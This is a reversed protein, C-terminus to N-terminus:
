WDLSMGVRAVRPPVISVPRLFSAGSSWVVNREANTNFLNFVDIFAGLRRDGRLRLRKDVRLDLLTINDMRRSGVPEALVTVTAYQITQRDTTFTRGFPQGSQHRLVPTVSFSRPLEYTGHAKATWTTFEYRGDPGANILDNPTLAYVNNRLGQGSYGAAHERNWTHTFGAGLSWRDQRRRTAALELTWYHSASRPVNSLINVTQRISSPPLDHVTVSAGDDGTGAIGDPGPDTVTKRVTFADFPQFINQRALQTHEGRWLVGSRVGIRSPLEREV